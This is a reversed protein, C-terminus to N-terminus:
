RTIEKKLWASKVLCPTHCMDKPFPCTDCPDEKGQPHTTLIKAPTAVANEKEMQAQVYTRMSEWRDIFWAQWEKCNKNECNKPDKVRTCDLCPSKM